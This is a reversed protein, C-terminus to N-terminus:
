ANEREALDLIDVLADLIDDLTMDPKYNAYISSDEDDSSISSDDDDDDFESLGDYRDEDDEDHEEHKPKEPEEHKPKEHEGPEHLLNFLRM